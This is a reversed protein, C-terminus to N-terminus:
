GGYRSGPWALRRKTVGTAQVWYGFTTRRFVLTGVVVIALMWLIQVPIGFLDGALVEYFTEHPLRAVPYASM